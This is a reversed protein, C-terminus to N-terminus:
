PSPLSRISCTSAGPGALDFARLPEAAEELVVAPSRPDLHDRDRSRSRHPFHGGLRSGRSSRSERGPDVGETQRLDKRLGPNSVTGIRPYSASPDEDRSGEDAACQAAPCPPVLMSRLPRPRGGLPPAIRPYNLRRVVQCGYLPRQDQISLSARNCIRDGPSAGRGAPAWGRSPRRRPRASRVVESEPIRRPPPWEPTGRVGLIVIFNSTIQFTGRSIRSM